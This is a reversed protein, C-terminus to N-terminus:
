YMARNLKLVGKNGCVNLSTYVSCYVYDSLCSQDKMAGMSVVVWLAM